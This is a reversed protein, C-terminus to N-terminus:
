LVFTAGVCCQFQACVSQACQACVLQACGSVSLTAVNCASSPPLKPLNTISLLKLQRRNPYNTLKTGYWANLMNAELVSQAVM